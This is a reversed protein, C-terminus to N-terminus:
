HGLRSGLSEEGGLETEGGRAAPYPAHSPRGKCEGVTSVVTCCFFLASLFNWDEAKQAWLEPKVKKLLGLVKLKEDESAPSLPWPSSCARGM